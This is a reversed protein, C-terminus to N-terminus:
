GSGLTATPSQSRCHWLHPHDPKVSDENGEFPSHPSGLLEVDRSLCPVPCLAPCPIGFDLPSRCELRWAAAKGRSKRGEKVAHELILEKNM